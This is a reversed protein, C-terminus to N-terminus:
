TLNVYCLLINDTMYYERVKNELTQTESPALSSPGPAEVERLSLEIEAPSSSSSSTTGAFEEIEQQEM